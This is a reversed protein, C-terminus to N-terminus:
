DSEEPDSSDWTNPKPLPKGESQRDEILMELVEEGHQSAEAYTKGDTVPMLVLGQWEPLVVVYCNDQDSWQILMSYKLTTM